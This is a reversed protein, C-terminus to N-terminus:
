PAVNPQQVLPDSVTKGKVLLNISNLIIEVATEEGVTSNITVVELLFLAPKLAFNTALVTM